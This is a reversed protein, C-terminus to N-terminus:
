EGQEVRDCAFLAAGVAGTILPEPPVLVKLGLQEEMNKVVGRNKSLGGSVAVDKKVPVRALLDLIRIVLSRNIGNIIDRKEAGKKLFSLAESKSYIVCQRNLQVPTESELAVRGMDELPVDLLKAMHELFRGAGGACKDNMAFMLVKGDENCNIVKSDQGGLDFLTRVSPFYYNVGRAHCSIESIIYDAYPAIIRGYGTAVVYQIDKQELQSDDAAKTLVELGIQASDVGMYDMSQSIVEGDKMIVAKAIRSGIDVGAVIM